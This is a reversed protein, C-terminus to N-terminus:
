RTVTTFVPADSASLTETSSANGVPTTSPPLTVHATVPLAVQPVTVPLAPCDLRAATPARILAPAALEMLNVTGTANAASRASLGSMLLAVAFSRADFAVPLALSLSTRATCASREIVLDSPAVLATGPPM